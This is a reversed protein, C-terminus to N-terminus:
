GETPIEPIKVANETSVATSPSDALMIQFQVKADDNVQVNIAESSRKQMFKPHLREAIWKINDAVFTAEKVGVENTKVEEMLEFLKDVYYDARETYAQDVQKKFEAFDRYWRRFTDYSIIKHKNCVDSVTSGESILSCIQRAITKNYKSAHHIAPTKRLPIMNGDRDYVVAHPNVGSEKVTEILEDLEDNRNQMAYVERTRKRAASREKAKKKIGKSRNKKFANM